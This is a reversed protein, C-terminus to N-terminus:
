AYYGEYNYRNNYAARRPARGEKSIYEEMDHKAIYDAYEIYSRLVAPSLKQPPTKRVKKMM